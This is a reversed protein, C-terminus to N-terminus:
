AYFCGLASFEQSNPGAVTAAEHTLVFVVVDIGALVAVDVLTIVIAVPVVVLAAFPLLNGLVLDIVGPLLRLLSAALRGLLTGL